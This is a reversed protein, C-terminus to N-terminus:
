EQRLNLKTELKAKAKARLVKYVFDAMEQESYNM